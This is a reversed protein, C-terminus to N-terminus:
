VIVDSLTLAKFGTATVTVHYNSVPLNKFEFEGASGTETTFQVNTKKDVIVINAKAVVGGNSDKVVGRVNGTTQQAHTIVVCNLLMAVLAAAHALRGAKRLSFQKRM